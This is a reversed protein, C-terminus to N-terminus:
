NFKLYSLVEDTARNWWYADGSSEEVVQQWATEEEVVDDEEVDDDDGTESSSFAKLSEDTDKLQKSKETLDAARELSSEILAQQKKVEDQHDQDDDDDNTLQVSSHPDKPPTMPSTPSTPSAPTTFHSPSHDSGNMMDDSNNSPQEEQMNVLGTASQKIVLQTSRRWRAFSQAVKRSSQGRGITKLSLCAGKRAFHTAASVLSAVRSKVQSMENRDKRV